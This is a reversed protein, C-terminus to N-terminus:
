KTQRKFGWNLFPLKKAYLMIIVMIKWLETLKFFHVACYKLHAHDNKRRKGNPKCECYLTHWRAQTGIFYLFVAATCLASKFYCSVGAVLLLPWLNYMLIKYKKTMPRVIYACMCYEHQEQGPQHMQGLSFGYFFNYQATMEKDSGVSKIAM